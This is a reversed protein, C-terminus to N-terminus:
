IKYKKSKFTRSNTGLNINEKEILNTFFYLILIIEEPSIDILSKKYKEEFLNMVEASTTSQLLKISLIKVRKEINTDNSNELLREFDKELTDFIKKEEEEIIKYQNNNKNDNDHYNNRNNNDVNDNNNDNDKDNKNFNNSNSSYNKSSTKLKIFNKNPIKDFFSKKPNQYNFPNKYQYKLLNENFIKNSLLSPINFKKISNIKIKM